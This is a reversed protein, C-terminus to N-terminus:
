EQLGRACLSTPLTNDGLKFPVFPHCVCEVTQVGSAIRLRSRPCETARHVEVALGEDSSLLVLRPRCVYRTFEKLCIGRPRRM